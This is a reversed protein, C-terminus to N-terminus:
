VRAQILALIDATETVLSLIIIVLYLWVTEPKLFMDMARMMGPALPEQQTWSLHFMDLYMRASHKYYLTLSYSAAIRQGHVM